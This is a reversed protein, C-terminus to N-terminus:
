FEQEIIHHLYNHDHYSTVRSRLLPPKYVNFLVRIVSCKLAYIMSSLRIAVGHPCGTSILRSMEDDWIQDEFSPVPRVSFQLVSSSLGM